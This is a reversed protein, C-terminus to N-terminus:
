PDVAPHDSETAGPAVYQREELGFLVPFVSLPPTFGHLLNDGDFDVSVVSTLGPITLPVLVNECLLEGGPIEIDTPPTCISAFDFAAVHALTPDFHGRVGTAQAPSSAAGVDWATPRAAFNPSFKGDEPLPAFAPTEFSGNTILDPSGDCSLSVNDWLVQGANSAELYLFLNGSGTGNSPPHSGATFSNLPSDFITDNVNPDGGQDPLVTFSYTRYEWQDAQVSNLVLGTGGQPHNPGPELIQWARNNPVPGPLENGLFIRFTSPGPAAGDTRKGTWLGLLCSSGDTVSPPLAQVLRGSGIYGVKTGDPVNFDPGGPSGPCTTEDGTCKGLMDDAGADYIEQIEAPTLVSNYISVEDLEGVFSYIDNGGGGSCFRSGISLYYPPGAGFFGYEIDGSLAVPPFPEAGDLFARVQAGDYTGAIHHWANDFVPGLFKFLTSPGATADTDVFFWANAGQQLIGYAGWPNGVGPKHIPLRVEAAGAAPGRIWLELSLTTAPELNPNAQPSFCNTNAGNSGAFTFGRDIQADVFTTGGANVATSGSTSNVFDDEGKWMGALGAPATICTAAAGGAYIIEEGAGVDCTPALSTWASAITPAHPDGAQRVLTGADVCPNTDPETPDLPWCPWNTPTAVAYTLGQLANLKGTPFIESPPSVYATGTCNAGDYFVRDRSTFKWPHVGLLTAWQEDFNPDRLYIQPAECQDLTSAKQFILHRDPNTPDTYMVELPRSTLWRNILLTRIENRAMVSGVLIGLCVITFFLLLEISIVAGSNPAQNRQPYRKM